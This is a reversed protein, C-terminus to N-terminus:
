AANENELESVPHLSFIDSVFISRNDTEVVAYSHGDRKRFYGVIYGVWLHGCSNKWVRANLEFPM